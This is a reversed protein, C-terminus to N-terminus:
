KAGSDFFIKSKRLTALDATDGSAFLLMVWYKGANTIWISSELNDVTSTAPGHTQLTWPQSVELMVRGGNEFARVKSDTTSTSAAVKFYVGLHAAIRQVAERDKVNGPYKAGPLCKPDAAILFAISNSGNPRMEEKFRSVFVLDKSCPHSAAKTGAIGPM